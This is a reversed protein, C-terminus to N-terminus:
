VSEGVKTEEVVMKQGGEGEVGEGVHDGEVVMGDGQEAVVQVDTQVHWANGCNQCTHYEFCGSSVRVEYYDSDMHACEPCPETHNVLGKRDYTIVKKHGTTTQSMTEEVDYHYGCTPCWFQVRSPLKDILLLVSCRPCFLM